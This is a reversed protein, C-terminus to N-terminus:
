KKEWYIDLYEFESVSSTILAKQVVSEDIEKSKKNLWKEMVKEDQRDECVIFLCVKGGKLKYNKAYRYSDHQTVRVLGNKMYKRGAPSVRMTFEDLAKPQWIALRNLELQKSM